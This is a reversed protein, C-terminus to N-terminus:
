RQGDQDVAELVLQAIDKVEIDDSQNKIAGFLMQYCNPCAVAAIDPKVECIQDARVKDIRVSPLEMFLGTGGGGCCLATERSREMEILELGPISQLIKRPADYINNQRGLYCPDHYAVKKKLKKTLELKETEILDWLVETYHKVEIDGLDGYYHRFANYDHPSLCIIRRINHKEFAGMNREMAEAFLWEEGMMRAFAGSDRDEDALMFFELGCSKFISILAEAMNKSHSDHPVTAGAFLLTGSDNPALNLGAIWDKKERDGVGYPNGYKALSMLANRIQLPIKGGQAIKMARIMEAMTAGSVKTERTGHLKIYLPTNMSCVSECWRCGVCSYLVEDSLDELGLEGSLLAIGIQALGRASVAENCLERYAPCNEVCLGCYCNQCSWLQQEYEALPISEYKEIEQM